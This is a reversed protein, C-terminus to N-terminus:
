NRREGSKVRHAMPGRKHCQCEKFNAEEPWRELVEAEEEEKGFVIYTSQRKSRESSTSVVILLTYTKTMKQLSGQQESKNVISGKKSWIEEYFVCVYSPAYLLSIFPNVSSAVM